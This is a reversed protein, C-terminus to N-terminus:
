NLWRSALESNLQRIYKFFSPFNLQIRVWPNKSSCNKKFLIYTHCKVKVWVTFPEELFLAWRFHIYLKMEYKLFFVTRTGFKKLNSSLEIKNYKVNGGSSTNKFRMEGYVLGKFICSNDHLIIFIKWLISIMSQVLLVCLFAFRGWRLYLDFLM